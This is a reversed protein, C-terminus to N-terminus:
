IIYYQDMIIFGFLIIPGFIIWLSVCFTSVLFDGKASYFHYVVKFYAIPLIIIELAMYVVILIINEVWYALYCFYQNFKRSVYKNILCPLTFMM